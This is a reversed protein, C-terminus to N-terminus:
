RLQRRDSKRPKRSVEIGGFVCNGTLRLVPSDPGTEDSDGAIERGGFVASGTDVVRMEPPVIIEAGGFVCTVHMTIERAPLVADRLDLEAGGFVCTVQSVPDPHWRGKRSVGGFVALMRAGRGAPVTPSSHVPAPSAHTQPSLHLDDLVPVLEAHTKAAYVTDLREAHEDATIRGDALAENLLGAARDRDADSARLRSVPNNGEPDMGSNEAM